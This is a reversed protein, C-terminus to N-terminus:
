RRRRWAVFGLHNETIWDLKEIELLKGYRAVVDDPGDFTRVHSPDDFNPLTGIVRLGHPLLNISMLDHDHGLHELVECFTIVNPAYRLVLQMVCGPIQMHLFTAEPVRATAKAIAVASFDVGVYNIPRLEADGILTAALHGPGCGLDLVCDAPGVHEAIFKWLPAWAAEVHSKSYAVSAEYIRDYYNRDRAEGM